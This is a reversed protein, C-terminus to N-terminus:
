AESPVVGSKGFIILLRNYDCIIFVLLLLLQPNLYVILSVRYMNSLYLLARYKRHNIDIM